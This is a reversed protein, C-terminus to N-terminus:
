HARHIYCIMAVQLDNIASVTQNRISRQADEVEDVNRHLNGISNPHPFISVSAKHSKCIHKFSKPAQNGKISLPALHWLQKM